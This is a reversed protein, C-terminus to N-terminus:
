RSPGAPGPQVPTPTPRRRSLDPPTMFDVETAKRLRGNPLRWVFPLGALAVVLYRFTAFAGLLVAADDGIPPKGLLYVMAVDRTGAGTFSIPILGIFIAMPIRSWLLATEHPASGATALYVFSFQALHLIWLLLSFALIKALRGPDKQFVQIV